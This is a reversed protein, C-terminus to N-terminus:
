RGPQGVSQQGPTSNVPPKAISMRMMEVQRELNDLSSLDVYDTGPELSTQILALKRTGDTLAINPRRVRIVYSDGGKVKIEIAADDHNVQSWLADPNGLAQVEVEDRFRAIEILKAVNDMPTILNVALEAGKHDYWKFIPMNDKMAKEARFNMKDGSRMQIGLKETYSDAPYNVIRKDRFSVAPAHFRDSLFGQILYVRGKHDPDEVRVFQNGSTHKRGLRVVTVKGSKRLEITDTYPGFKALDQEAVPYLATYRLKSWDSFINKVTYGGRRRVATGAADNSEVFYADTFFGGERIFKKPLINGKEREKQAERDKPNYNKEKKAKEDADAQAKEYEAPVVGKYDILDWKTDFVLTEPAKKELGPGFLILGAIVAVALVAIIVSRRM